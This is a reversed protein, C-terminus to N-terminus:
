QQVRGLWTLMFQPLVERNAESSPFPVVDMRNIVGGGRKM